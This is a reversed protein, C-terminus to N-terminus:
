FKVRKFEKIIKVQKKLGRLTKIKYFDSKFSYWEVGDSDWKKLEYGIIM